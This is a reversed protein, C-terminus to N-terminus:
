NFSLSLADIAQDPLNVQWVILHSQDGRSLSRRESTGAEEARGVEDEVDGIRFDIYGEGGSIVLMSKPKQTKGGFTAISTGPDLESPSPQSGVSHSADSNSAASMGGSGLHSVWLLTLM